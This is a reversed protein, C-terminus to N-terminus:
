FEHRKLRSRLTAARPDSRIWDTLVYAAALAIAAQQAPADPLDAWQRLQEIADPLRSFRSPDDAHPWRPANSGTHAADLSRWDISTRPFLRRVHRRLAVPTWNLHACCLFRVARARDQRWAPSFVPHEAESTDNM